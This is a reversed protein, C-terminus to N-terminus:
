GDGVSPCRPQKQTKPAAIFMWTCIKTLVYTKLIKPYIALATVASDCALLVNLKTPFPQARKGLPQAATYEWLPVDHRRVTSKVATGSHCM